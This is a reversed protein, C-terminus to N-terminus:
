AWRVVQSSRYVFGQNLSESIMGCDRFNICSLRLESGGKAGEGKDCDCDGKRNGDGTSFSQSSRTPEVHESSGLRSLTSKLDNMSRLSRM